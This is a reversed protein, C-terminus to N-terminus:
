GTGLAGTRGTANLHHRPPRHHPCRSHRSGSEGSTIMVGLLAAALLAFGTSALNDRLGGATALSPIEMGKRTGATVAELVGILAVALGTMAAVVAVALRAAKVLETVPGASVLLGRDIVVAHDAFQALEGMGTQALVAGIRSRGAGTAACRVRLHDTVTRGPHFGSAELVAGVRRQRGGLERYPKGWIVAHGSTPAVLGLLVRLTTTKDAGNRM